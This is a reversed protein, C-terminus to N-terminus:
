GEAARAAALMAPPDVAYLEAYGCSGCVCATLEIRVKGKFIWAAPNGYVVASLNGADASGHGRDMIRVDRLVESSGCKTCAGTRM